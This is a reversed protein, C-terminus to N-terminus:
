QSVEKPTARSNIRREVDAFDIFRRNMRNYLAFGLCRETFCGFSFYTNAWEGRDEQKQRAVIPNGCFPCPEFQGVDVVPGFEQYLFNEDIM